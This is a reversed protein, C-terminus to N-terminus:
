EGACWQKYFEGEWYLMETGSKNKSCGPYALSFTFNDYQKALAGGM